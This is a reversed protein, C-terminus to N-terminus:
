PASTITQVGSSNKFKLKGITKDYWITGDKATTALALIEATSFSPPVIGNITVDGNKTITTTIKNICILIDNLVQFTQDNYLKSNQTLNGDSDVYKMDYFAPLNPIGTENAM